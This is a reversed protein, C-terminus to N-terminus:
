SLPPREQSPIGRDYTVRVPRDGLIKLLSQYGQWDIDHLVFRQAAWQLRESVATSM